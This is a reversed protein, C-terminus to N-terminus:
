LFPMMSYSSDQKKVGRQKQSTNTVSCLAVTGVCEEIMEGAKQPHAEPNNAAKQKDWDEPKEVGDLLM